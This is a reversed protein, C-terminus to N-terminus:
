PAAKCAASIGGGISTVVKWLQLDDPVYTTLAGGFAKMYDAQTLLLDRLIANQADEAMNRLEGSDRDLVKQVALYLRKQEPNWQDAPTRSDTTAWGSLTSKQRDLFALFTGCAPERNSMFASLVAPPEANSVSIPQDQSTLPVASCMYSVATGFNSAVGAVLSDAETYDPIKEVFKRLYVITQAILEQIVVHEAKPLISEFNDAAASMAEAVDGYIRRQEETWRAAPVSDDISAWPKEQDSLADAFTRWDDCVPDKERLLGVTRDSGYATPSPDGGGQDSGFITGRWALLGVVLVVVVSLSVGLAIWPKRSPKRAPAFGEPPSPRNSCPPVGGCPPMTMPRRRWCDLRICVGHQAINDAAWGGTECWIAAYRSLEDIDSIRVSDCQNLM